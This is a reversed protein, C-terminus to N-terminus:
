MACDKVFRELLSVTVNPMVVVHAEGKYCALQYTKVIQESPQPFVVTLSFPNCCAPVGVTKLMNTLAHARTACVDADRRYGDHGHGMFRSWIALVAHGNRSGMLTTDNSRLYAVASAIREVHCRKAVLVGCPMPTGIMKHGSVSISDIAHRFSPRIAPPAADIYPIVMANLAGDLHIYRKHKAIGSADIRAIVGAVDDHAGKMTTGCTLAVIVPRKKLAALAQSLADLDIEGRANSVVCIAEIRQLKAAKPISYHADAGHLLVADPLAERGLYIGWLNGETGSTGISGWYDDHNECQWLDMLWSVAERELDCVESAYHSGAYPDGLNNILYNGLSAPVGPDFSLNYPYGLHTERAAKVRALTREFGSRLAYATPFEPPATEPVVFLPRM